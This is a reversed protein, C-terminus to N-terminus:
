GPRKARAGEMTDHIPLLRDLHTSALLATIRRNPGVLRVSGGSAVAHRHAAVLASLATSDMFTVDTLDLLLHASCEEIANELDVTLLGAIAVDIEGDICIVCYGDLVERPFLRPVHSM